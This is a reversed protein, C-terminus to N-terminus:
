SPDSPEREGLDCPESPRRWGGLDERQVRSGELGTHESKPAPASMRSKSTQALNAGASRTRERESVHDPPTGPHGTM